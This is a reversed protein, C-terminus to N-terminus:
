VNMRDFDEAIEIRKFIKKGEEVLKKPNDYRQSLHFVVLKRSNSKEAASAIQEITLHGYKEALESESKSYTAESVVLDSNKIFQVLESNMRTDTIYSIKKAPELYILKKGDIKKGNISVMKGKLIEAIQPGNPIKLRKLKNKDIRTKEKINFTYALCPCDHQMKKSEIFFDKEQIKEEELEIIEMKLQGTNRIFLQQYADMVRLIGCPGYIQLTKKYGNLILTQILGPLGFTHDGHWHSIFIKNIKCPSIGAKRFQRQTGEGCDFLIGNEKYELFVAPHNRRETPIASGTGLFTVKIAEAM